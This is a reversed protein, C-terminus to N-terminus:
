PRAEHLRLIASSQDASPPGRSETSGHHTGMKEIATRQDPLRRAATHTLTSSINKGRCLVEKLHKRGELFLELTGDPDGKEVVTRETELRSM